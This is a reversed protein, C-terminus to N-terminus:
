GGDVRRVVGIALLEELFAATDTLLAKPEVEFEELLQLTLGRVDLQGDILDLIRAGVENLVLAEGAEQRIVVGEDHVLRYRVDPARELILESDIM